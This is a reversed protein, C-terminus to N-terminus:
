HESSGHAGREGGTLLRVGVLLVMITLGIPILSQPIFMPIDASQSRQDFSYLDSIVPWAFAIITLATAIFVLEAFVDLAARIRAPMMGVVVDMRIQRGHWAVIGSGLFVCGVMLFLMTEEAWHISANFFYRGIVNAFNLAVSGILLGGALVRLIALLARVGRLLIDLM